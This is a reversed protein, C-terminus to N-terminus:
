SKSHEPWGGDLWGSSFTSATYWTIQSPLCHGLLSTQLMKPRDHPVHQHMKIPSKYMHHQNRCSKNGPQQIIVLFLVPKRHAFVHLMLDYPWLKQQLAKRNGFMPNWKVPCPNLSFQLCHQTADHLLLELSARLLPLPVPMSHSCWLSLVSRYSIYAYFSKIEGTWFSRALVEYTVIFHSSIKTNLFQYKNYSYMGTNYRTIDNHMLLLPLPM